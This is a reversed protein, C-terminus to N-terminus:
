TKGARSSLRRELSSAPPPFNMTAHAPSPFRVRSPRGRTTIWGHLETWSPIEQWTTNQAVAAEDCWQLLKPLAERHAATDRFGRMSAESDWMTVTWFTLKRDALLKGRRFGVSRTVQRAIRENLWLFQPLIWVSRLRLRTISIM